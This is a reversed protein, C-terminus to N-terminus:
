RSETRVRPLLLPFLTLIMNIRLAKFNMKEEFPLDPVIVGSVGSEKANQLFRDYGYKFLVNLYTMYVLPIDM